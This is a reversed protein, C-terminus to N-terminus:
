ISIPYKGYNRIAKVMEVYNEPKVASHISNSSMCIYGGGRAAQKVCRKVDDRVEELTGWTLTYACDVNGVLCVRHGYKKKVEGLDMRANPDIPHLAHIGTDIIMDIIPM